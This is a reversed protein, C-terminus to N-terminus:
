ETLRWAGGAGNEEWEFLPRAAQRAKLLARRNLCKLSERRGDDRALGIISNIWGRENLPAVMGLAAEEDSVQYV